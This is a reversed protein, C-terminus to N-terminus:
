NIMDIAKELTKIKNNLLIVEDQLVENELKLDKGEQTSLTKAKSSATGPILNYRLAIFYTLMGIIFGTFGSILITITLDDM